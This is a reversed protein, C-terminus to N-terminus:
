AAEPRKVNPVFARQCHLDCYPKGEKRVAECFRLGDKRPDGYIWCCTPGWRNLSKSGLPIAKEQRPLTTRPPIFPAALRTFLSTQDAQRRAELAAKRELTRTVQRATRQANQSNSRPVIPTVAVKPKPLRKQGTRNYFATRKVIGDIRHSRGIVSNKTFMMGFQENLMEAIKPTSHGAAWYARLADDMEESWFNYNSGAM